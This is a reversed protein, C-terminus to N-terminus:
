DFQHSADYAHFARDPLATHKPDFQIQRSFWLKGGACFFLRHDGPRLNLGIRRQAGQEIDLVVRGIQHRDLTDHRATGIGNASRPPRCARRQSQARM